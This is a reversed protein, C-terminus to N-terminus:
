FGYGNTDCCQCAISNDVCEAEHTDCPNCQGMDDCPLKVERDGLNFLSPRLIQLNAQPTIVLSGSLTPTCTGGECNVNISPNLLKACADFDFVLTPSVGSIQCPINVNCFAFSAPGTVEFPTTVPTNYCIKFQCSPGNGYVTGEVVITALLEWPGEAMIMVFNGPCDNACPPRCDCRTIESMIGSIDGVFQNGNPTLATIPIGEVTIDDSTLSAPDALTLSRVLVYANTINFNTDGNIDFDCCCDCRCDNGCDCGYNSGCNCNHDKKTSCINNGIKLQQTFESATTDLATMIPSANASENYFIKNLYVYNDNNTCNNSCIM